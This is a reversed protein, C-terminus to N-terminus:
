PGTRDRAARAAHWVLYQHGCTMLILAAAAGILTYGARDAIAKALDRTGGSTQLVVAPTLFTVFVWYPLRLNAWAALLTLAAALAGILGPLHRFYYVVVAALTSGVLTGVVRHGVRTVMEAFHPQVVVYFTLIMWWSTPPLWTLAIFSGVAVMGGLSVAFFGAARASVPEPATVHMRRLAFPGLCATWVGGLLLVALTVLMAAPSSDADVRGSPMAVHLDGILALAALPAAFAFMVHWGRVAVLGTVAGLVMMYGAGVVAPMDRLLLSVGVIAPTLAAAGLALRRSTFLGMLAPLMGLYWLSGNASWPSLDLAVIPAVVLLAVVVLVAVNGRPPATSTEGSPEVTATSVICFHWM